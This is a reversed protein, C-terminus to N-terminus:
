KEKPLGNICTVWTELESAMTLYDRSASPMRKGATGIESRRLDSLAEVIGRALGDVTPATLYGTVGHDILFPINGVASALVPVGLAQAELVIIGFPEERSPVVCLAAHELLGLVKAHPVPGLFRVSKELGLEVVMAKLPGEEPGDGAIWLGVGLRDAVIAWAHLLLDFGKKPVLRGAALVYPEPGARLMERHSVDVADALVGTTGRAARFWPAEEIVRDRLWASCFLTADAARTLCLYAVRNLLSRPAIRLADNGRFSLVLPVGCDRACLWAYVAHVTVFHVYVVDPRWRRVARLVGLSALLARGPFTLRPRLNWRFRQVDFGDILEREAINSPQRTLVLV